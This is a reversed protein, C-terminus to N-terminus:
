AADELPAQEVRPPPAPSLKRRKTALVVAALILGAGGLLGASVPENLILAGLIVAVVPNVYAYTSVTSAPLVTLCYAFATFGILSGAVVLYGLAGWARLSVGSLGSLDEGMVGSEVLLILAGAIMEISSATFVPLPQRMSKTYLAGVTWSLAAFQLALVGALHAGAVGDGGPRAVLGVGLLGIATSIWGRLTWPTGGPRMGDLLTTWLPLTAVILAAIGSPVRQESWMVFGNGFGLFLVGILSYDLWQRGRPREKGADFRWALLGMLFGAVLFRLFAAFFPPIEKVAIAIALYTSGWVLYITFLALWPLLRARRPSM